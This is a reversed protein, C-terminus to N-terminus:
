GVATLSLQSKGLLSIYLEERADRAFRKGVVQVLMRAVLDFSATALVLGVLLLAAHLIQTRPSASHLVNNFASGTVVSVTSFCINALVSTILFLAARQWYRALHSVIWHVASSHNYSHAGTVTFERNSVPM